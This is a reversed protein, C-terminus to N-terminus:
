SCGVPPAPRPGARVPGGTLARIASAVLVLPVILWALAAVTDAARVALPSVFRLEVVHPGPAVPVAMFAYHARLVPTARDDVTASWWPHHAESVFVVAPADGADTELTIREPSPRRYTVPRFDAGTPAAADPAPPADLILAAGRALEAPAEARSAVDIAILSRRSAWAAVLPADARGEAVVWSRAAYAMPLADAREWLAFDDNAWGLHWPPLMHLRASPDIEEVFRDIRAIRCLADSVPAIAQRREPKLEAAMSATAMRMYAGWPRGAQWDLWAWALGVDSEIAAFTPHIWDTPTDWPFMGLRTTGGDSPVEAIARALERLPGVPTGRDYARHSPWFDVAVLLGLVPVLGRRVRADKVAEGLSVLAVGLLAFFSFPALDFFHGPSRMGRFPPFVREAIAFLSYAPVLCLLALALPADLPRERARALRVGGWALGGVGAITLLAALPGDLSEAWGFTRGLQWCLTRPGIALWYQLVLVLGFAQYWRRLGYRRRAAFWGAVVVALAVVGLYRRASFDPDDVDVLLGPAHHTELWGSLWGNRNLYMFPSQEVFVRQGAEVDAPDLLTHNRGDAGIWAITSAGLAAFSVLAIGLARRRERVIATNEQEDTARRWPRLLLLVLPVVAAIMAQAYNTRLMCALALGLALSRPWRPRRLLEVSAILVLPLIASTIAVDLHGGVGSQYNAPAGFAYAYGAIVGALPAALFRAFMAYVGLGAAVKALAFMVEAGRVPGLSIALPFALVEKFSGMFDSSGAFWRPRWTPMWGHRLLQDRVYAIMTIYGPGDGGPLRDAARWGYMTVPVLGVMIVAAVLHWTTGPPASPATSV